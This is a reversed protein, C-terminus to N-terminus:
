RNKKSQKQIYSVLSKLSHDMEIDSCKIEIDRTGERIIIKYSLYDAAGKSTLRKVHPLQKRDILERVTAELSAPLENVEIENSSTIGTFGGSREVKIKV